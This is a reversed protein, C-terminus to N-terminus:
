FWLAGGVPVADKFDADVFQSSGEIDDLKEWVITEEQAFTHDTVLTHLGSEQGFPKYLVLLHSNRFLAVLEGQELTSSLSFLGYYTIQSQSTEIFRRVAIAANPTLFSTSYLYCRHSAM